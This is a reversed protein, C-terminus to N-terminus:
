TSVHFMYSLDLQIKHGLIVEMESKEKIISRGIISQKKSRHKKLENIKNTQNSLFHSLFLFFAFMEIRAHSKKRARKRGLGPVLTKLLKLQFERVVLM